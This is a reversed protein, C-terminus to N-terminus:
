ATTSGDKAVVKVRDGNSLLNQGQIVIEEGPVLGSTIQYLNSSMAGVQVIQGEVRGQKDVFVEQAGGQLSLVADAPVMIASGRASGAVQAEVQMGPLLQNHEGSLMVDVPYQNTTVSLEPQIDLVKGPINLSLGPIYVSMTLGPHIHGIDAQPVSVTVMQPSTSAVTILQTQPGVSQGVQAGVAQVLGSIPSVVQGNQVQASLEAQATQYGAQQQQLAAQSSSVQAQLQTHDSVTAQTSKLNNLAAQVATQAQNVAAKAAQVTLQIQQAPNSGATPTADALNKEAVTQNAQATAVETKAQAVAQLGQNYASEANQLDNYQTSLGQYISQNAQVQTSYPNEGGYSSNQWSQYYSLSSQYAQAAQAVQAATIDGDQQQATDLNQKLITLNSTALQVQQQASQLSQQSSNVATQLATVDQSTGGGTLDAQAVLEAKQLNIQAAALAAKQESVTNQASTLQAKDPVTDNAAVQANAVQTQASNVGAAAQIVSNEAPVLTVNSLRALVEGKQVVQGARVNLTALLGSAGPSLLTQVYPTLSGLYTNGITMPSERVIELSVALPPLAQTLKSAGTACGTLGGAVTLVTLSLLALHSVTRRATEFQSM